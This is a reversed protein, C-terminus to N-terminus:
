PRSQARVRLQRHAQPLLLEATLASGCSERSLPSPGRWIRFEGFEPQHGAFGCVPLWTRREAVGEAEAPVVAAYDEARCLAWACPGASGGLTLANCVPTLPQRSQNTSATPAHTRLPVQQSIYCGAVRNKLDIWYYSNALGAWMLGGAPRGTPAPAENIQVHSGRSRGCRPLVRCRVLVASRGYHLKTVRLAGMANSTMQAHTEPSM